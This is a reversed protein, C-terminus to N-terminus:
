RHLSVLPMTCCYKRQIGRNSWLFDEMPFRVSLPLFSFFDESINKM